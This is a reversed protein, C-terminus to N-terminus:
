NKKNMLDLTHLIPIFVSKEKSKLYMLKCKVNSITFISPSNLKESTCYINLYKSEIPSDFCNHLVKVSAGYIHLNNNFNTANIMKVVKDDKTLFWQNKKTNSLLFGDNLYLKNFTKQCRPHEHLHNTQKQVYPYTRTTFPRSENNANEIETIRKVVQALPRHGNRILAKIQGLKNEFPYASFNPLPGFRKVDEILHCINHVNNNIADIGYIHIYRELYEGLLAEALPLYGENIYFNCNCITIACFLLMHHDYVIESVFDKLIVPSLYLLFTRYELGKWHSLCDLGRIARHLEEPRYKNCEELMKSMGIVQQASLKTAKFNYGGNKWGQLCRKMIGLEILHLTDSVPFDKILDINLNELPTRRFERTIGNVQHHDPDRKSRFDSDTRLPADFRPYSM